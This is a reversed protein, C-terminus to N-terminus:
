VNLLKDLVTRWTDFNWNTAAVFIDNITFMPTSHVGRTCGYKFDLRALGEINPDAVQTARTTPPPRPPPPPPPPACFFRLPHPILVVNSNFLTLTSFVTSVKTNFDAEEIGTLGKALGSLIQLVQNDNLKATASTSLSDISSYVQGLWHFATNNNPTYSDLVHAAKSIVHSNRHYPLNHLHVRFQVQEPRYHDAVKLLYPYVAKSDPCTPDLYAVIQVQPEQGASGYLFGLSRAPISLQACTTEWTLILIAARLLITPTALTLKPPQPFYVSASSKLGHNLHVLMYIFAM